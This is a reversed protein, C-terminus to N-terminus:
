APDLLNEVEDMVETSLLTMLSFVRRFGEPDAPEAAVFAQWDALSDWRVVELFATQDQRDQLLLAGRAGKVKANIAKSVRQWTAVFTREEGAKVRLRYIRVMKGPWGSYDLRDEMEAVAETSLLEGTARLTEMAGRDPPDAQRFSNWDEYSDWRALALFETPDQHNRLLLSGRAGKSRARIARTAQGWARVFAEAQSSKVRWRYFVRIIQNEEKAETPHAVAAKDGALTPSAFESSRQRNCAITSSLLLYAM